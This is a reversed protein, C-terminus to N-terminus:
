LITSAFILAGIALAILQWRGVQYVRFKDGDSLREFAHSYRNKAWSAPGPLVLRQMRWVLICALVFAGSAALLKSTILGFPIWGAAQSEAAVEAGSMNNGAAGTARYLYSTFDLLQERGTLLALGILVFALAPAWKRFLSRASCLLRPLTNPM